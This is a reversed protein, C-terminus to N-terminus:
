FRWNQWWHCELPWDTIILTWHITVLLWGILRFLSQARHLVVRKLHIDPMMMMATNPIWVLFLTRTQTHSKESGRKHTFMQDKMCLFSVHCKYPRTQDQTCLSGFALALDWLLTESSEWWTLLCQVKPNSRKVHHILLICEFEEWSSRKPKKCVSFYPPNIAWSLRHMGTSFCLCCLCQNYRSMNDEGYRNLEQKM